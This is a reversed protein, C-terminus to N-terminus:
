TVPVVVGCKSLDARFGDRHRRRVVAAVALLGFQEDRQLAAGVEELVHLLEVLNALLVLLVGGLKLLLGLLLDLGVSLAVAECGCGGVSVEITLPLSGPSPPRAPRFM